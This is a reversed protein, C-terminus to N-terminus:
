ELILFQHNMFFLRNCTQMKELDIITRISTPQNTSKPFSWKIMQLHVEKVLELKKLISIMNLMLDQKFTLMLILKKIIKFELYLAM